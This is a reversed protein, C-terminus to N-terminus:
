SLNNTFFSLCAGSAMGWLLNFSMILALSWVFWNGTLLDLNQFLPWSFLVQIIFAIFGLVGGFIVYNRKAIPLLFFLGFFGGTALDLLQDGLNYDPTFEFGFWAPIPLTGFLLIFGNILISGLIGAVFALLIQYQNM